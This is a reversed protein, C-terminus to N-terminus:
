PCRDRTERESGDSRYGPSSEIGGSVRTAVYLFGRGPAPLTPEDWAPVPTVVLCRAFPLFSPEGLEGRYLDYDDTWWEEDWVLLTQGVFRLNNILGDDPNCADGQGDGGHDAQDRNAVTPCNDLYNPVEDLDPDHDSTDPPAM